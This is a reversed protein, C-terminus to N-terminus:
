DQHLGCSECDLAQFEGLIVRQIRDAGAEKVGDETACNDAFKYM